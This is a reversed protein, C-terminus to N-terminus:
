NLGTTDLDNDIFVSVNSNTYETFTGDQGDVSVNDSGKTWDSSGNNDKDESLDITDGDDGKIILEDDSDTMDVIDDLEITITQNENDTFDVVEINDVKTKINTLDVSDSDADVMLIDIDDATGTTDADISKDEWETTTKTYTTLSDDNGFASKVDSPLNNYDVETSNEKYTTSAQQTVDTFTDVGNVDTWSADNPVESESVNVGNKTYSVTTETAIGTTTDFNDITKGDVSTIDVYFNNTWGAAGGSNDFADFAIYRFNALNDPFADNIDYTGLIELKGTNADIDAGYVIYQGNLGSTSVDTITFDLNSIEKGFDILLSEDNEFATTQQGVEKGNQNGVGLGQGVVYTMAANAATINGANEFSEYGDGEYAHATFLTTTTEVKTYVDSQEPIETKTYVDNTTTSNLTHLEVPNPVPTDTAVDIKVPVVASELSSEDIVKYEFEVGPVEHYTIGGIYYDSSDTVVGNQNAYEQASFRLQDFVLDDISLTGSNSGESNGSGHSEASLTYDAGALSNNSFTFEGLSKGDLFAEFTGVEGSGEGRILHTIAVSSDTVPKAFDFIISEARQTTPDYGIQNAIGSHNAGTVGIGDNTNYSISADQNNGDRVIVTVDSSNWSSQIGSSTYDGGISKETSEALVQNHTASWYVNDATSLLTSSDDLNSADLKTYTGNKEVYVDGYTPLSTIDFVLNSETTEKDEGGLDAPDSSDNEAVQIDGDLGGGIDLKKFFAVDTEAPTNSNAAFNALVADDTDLNSTTLVADATPPTAPTYPTIDCGGIDVRVEMTNSHKDGDFITYEFERVERDESTSTFTLSELAQEFEEVTVTNEANATLTVGLVGNVVSSTVTINNPVNTTGIVDGNHYNTLTVTASELYTDDVDSFEINSLIKDTNSYDTGELKIHDIYAGLTDADGISQFNLDATQTDINTFQANVEYWPTGSIPTITASVNDSSTTTTINGQADVLIEVENGALSFKMDSSNTAGPRPTYNFTLNYTDNALGLDVTTTISSNTGKTHADLEVYNGSGDATDLGHVGNDVRMEIGADNMTWQIGSNSVLINDGNTGHDVYWNGGNNTDGANMDKSVGEFEETLLTTTIPQGLTECPKISFVVDDYDKDGLKLDEFGVVLGDIDNDKAVMAHDHGDQNLDNDSYFAEYSSGNVVVKGTTNDFSIPTDKTVGNIKDLGDPIIFFGVNGSLGNITGLSTSEFDDMGRTQDIHIIKGAIPNGNEDATYIGLINNYGAQGGHYMVELSGNQDGMNLNFDGSESDFRIGRDTDVLGMENKNTADNHLDVTDIQGDGDTDMVGTITHTARDNATISTIEPADDRGEVTIKLDATDDPNYGDSLTYTFNDIESKGVNWSDTLTENVDYTYAGTNNITLTGYDGTITVDSGNSPINVITGNFNIATISLPNSGVDADTDTIVNGTAIQGDDKSNITDASDESAIFESGTETAINTNDKAEPAQDNDTITTVVVGDIDVAEYILGSTPAAYNGISVELNESNEAIKDDVANMSIATGLAISTITTQPTYDSNETTKNTFIFDVKGLQTDLLTSDNFVVTNPEFAFAVYHTAGGEATENVTLYNGQSDTLPDGNSDSAFVRIIVTDITDVLEVTGVTPTGLKEFDSGGTVVVNTAATLDADAEKYVDEFVSEAVAVTTTGTTGSTIKITQDNGLLDKFTVTVPEDGSRVESGLTVTYTLTTGDEDFSPAASLDVTTTDITDVLEVTGVTPTGLKEFDSGGTVVVNTAATLDADAEKYVDEFVSEAVAVTTTGTTGSTIKITQDNGLLDKFTVTVPEDGSRVESGLTVTYTLTTGDEDFSPAASLDVTTTDITDSVTVTASDNTLTITDFGGGTLSVINVTVTDPDIYVDSDKTIVDFDFSTTGAPITYTTLVGNIETVMTMATFPAQSLELTFTTNNQDENVDLGSLSATVSTYTNSPPPTDTPPTDEPSEPNGEDEEADNLEDLQNQEEPTLYATDEPGGAATAEMNDLMAQFDDIIAGGAVTSGDLSLAEKLSEIIEGSEFEPNHLAADIQQDGQANTSVGFITDVSFPDMPNNQQILEAMNNLIINIKEGDNTMFYVNMTNNDNILQFQYSEVGTFYIHEGQTPTFNMDQTVEQERLDGNSSRIIMKM